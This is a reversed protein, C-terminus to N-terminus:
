SFKMRGKKKLFGFSTTSEAPIGHRYAAPITVGLVRQMAMTHSCDGWDHFFRCTCNWEGNDYNTTHIDSEGRFTAEFHTFQIREPEEAYRKAKAIKNIWSSMSSHHLPPYMAQNLYTRAESNNPDILLAQNLNTVAKEYQLQRLYILGKNIYPQIFTPDYQLAQDYIQLAEEYRGQECCIASLPMYTFINKPNIELARSYDILAEKQDGQVRHVIGRMIWLKETLPLSQVFPLQEAEEQLHMLSSIFVWDEDHIAVEFLCDLLELAAEKECAIVYCFFAEASSVRGDEHLRYIPAVIKAASILLEAQSIAFRRLLGERTVDRFAMRGQAISEIFPLSIIQEYIIVASEEILASEKILAKIISPDFWHLLVCQRAVRATEESLEQIVSEAIIAAKEALDNTALLEQLISDVM